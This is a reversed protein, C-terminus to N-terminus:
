AAIREKVLKSFEEALREKNKEEDLWKQRIANILVGARADLKKYMEGM